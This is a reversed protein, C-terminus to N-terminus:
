RAFSSASNPGLTVTKSVEVTETGITVGTYKLKNVINGHADTETYTTTTHTDNVRGHDDYYAEVVKPTVGDAEFEQKGDTTYKYVKARVPRTMEETYVGVSGEVKGPTGAAIGQAPVAM